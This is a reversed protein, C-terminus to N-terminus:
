SNLIQEKYQEDELCQPNFKFPAPPNKKSLSILLSIPKHDSSGGTEVSSKIILNKNLLDENILFHDLRKSIAQPGGRKNRWIPELKLPAVVM